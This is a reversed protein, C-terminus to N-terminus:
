KWSMVKTRDYVKWLRGINWGPRTERKFGEDWVESYFLFKNHTQFRCRKEPITNIKKEQTVSCWDGESGDNKVTKLAVEGTQSSSYRWPESSFLGPPGECSHEIYLLLKQEWAAADKNESTFISAGQVTLVWIWRFTAEQQKSRKKNRLNLLSPCQRANLGSHNM